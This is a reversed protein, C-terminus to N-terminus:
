EPLFIFSFRNISTRGEEVQVLFLVLFHDNRPDVIREVVLPPRFLNFFLKYSVHERHTTRQCLPLRLGYSLDGLRGKSFLYTPLPPAM